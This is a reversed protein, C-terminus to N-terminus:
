THKNPVTVNLDGSVEGGRRILMHRISIELHFEGSSRSSRWVRIINPRLITIQRSKALAPAYVSVSVLEFSGSAYYSHQCYFLFARLM